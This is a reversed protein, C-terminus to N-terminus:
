IIIVMLSTTPCQKRIRKGQREILQIHTAKAMPCSTYVMRPSAFSALAHQPLTASVSRPPRDPISQRQRLVSCQSPALQVSQKRRAHLSPM